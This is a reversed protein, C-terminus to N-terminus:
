NLDSQPKHRLRKTVESGVVQGDQIKLRLEGFGHRLLTCFETILEADSFARELIFQKREADDHLNEIKSVTAM